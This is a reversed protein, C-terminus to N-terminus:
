EIRSALLMAHEEYWQKGNPTLLRWDGDSRLVPQAGTYFEALRAADYGADTAARTADDWFLRQDPAAYFAKLFRLARLIGGSPDHEQGLVERRLRQLEGELADLREILENPTLTENM